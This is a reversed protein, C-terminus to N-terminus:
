HDGLYTDDLIGALSEFPGRAWDEGIEGPDAAGVARQWTLSRAVKAARCALELTEVLEARPALDDFGELYADRLRLVRPDDDSEAELLEFRVFGIGLLMSAFPHAVVSDGWDFFRARGDDMFINAHHLDNHDITAGGPMAALRKSWEAVPQRMAAIRECTARDEPSGHAEVFAQAAALAEDFRQPLVAPRMDHVGLALLEDAHPALARQLEAYQPLIALMAEAVAAGDLRTGIPRGGDPLLMWARAPDLAIPDLVHEPAVRGLLEYLGPEFDTGSGSAKFWVPGDATPVKLVTAWPRVQTQEAAGSRSRGTGALRADIWAVADARWEPSTWAAVGAENM